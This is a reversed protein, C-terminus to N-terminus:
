RLGLAHRFFGRYAEDIFMAPEDAIGGGELDFYYAGTALDISLSDLPFGPTRREHPMDALVFARSAIADNYQEYINYEDMVLCIANRYRAQARGGLSHILAAYHSIMEDDSLTKGGVNRVHVGPQREPPLGTIFLGSDCSFVPMGFAQHYALAKLHANDLPDRGNEAVSPAAHPMNALGLIDLGLPALRKRMFALKAPNGTGFLLQM